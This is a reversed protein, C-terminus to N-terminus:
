PQEARTKLFASKCASRRIAEALAEHVAKGPSIPFDAEGKAKEVM